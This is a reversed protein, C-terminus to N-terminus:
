EAKYKYRGKTNWIFVHDERHQILCRAQEDGDPIKFGGVGLRKHIADLTDQSLVKDVKM